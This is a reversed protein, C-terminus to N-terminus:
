YNEEESGQEEGQSSQKSSKSSGKMSSAQMSSKDGQHSHRGGKARDEQTLNSGRGKTDTM